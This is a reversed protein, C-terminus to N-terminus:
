TVEQDFHVCWNALEAGDLRSTVTESDRLNGRQNRFGYRLRRQSGAPASELGVVVSTGDGELEVSTIPPPSESDDTFTFGHHPEPPVTSTDFRLPTAPVAFPVVIRRGELKAALPRLPEWSRGAMLRAAVRAHYEGLRYYGVSTLHIGDAQSPLHYKPGVLFVRDSDVHEALQALGVTPQDLEYQPWSNVQCVIMRPRVARGGIAAIDDTYDALLRRMQARYTPQDTRAQMDSEGHILHLTRVDAFGGDLGVLRMSAAVDTMAREYVGTDGGKSIQRLTSGGAGSSAIIVTSGTFEHLRYGLSCGAQGTGSGVTLPRDRPGARYVAEPYEPTTSIPAPGPGVALSQGTVIAVLRDKTSMTGWQRATPDM